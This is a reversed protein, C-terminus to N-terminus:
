AAKAYKAHDLAVFAPTFHVCQRLKDSYPATALLVNVQYLMEIKKNYDTWSTLARVEESSGLSSFNSSM